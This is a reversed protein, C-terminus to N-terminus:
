LFCNFVFHLFVFIIYPHLVCYKLIQAHVTKTYTYLNCLGFMLHQKNKSCFAHVRVNHTQKNQKTQNQKKHKLLKERLTTTKCHANM